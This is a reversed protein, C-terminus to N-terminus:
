PLRLYNIRIQEIDTLIKEIRDGSVMLLLRSRLNSLDKGDNLYKLISALSKKNSRSMPLSSFLRQDIRSAALEASFRQAFINEIVGEVDAAPIPKKLRQDALMFFESVAIDFGKSSVAVVFPGNPIKIRKLIELGGRKVDEVLVGAIDLFVCDYKLLTPIDALSLNEVSVISYGLRRLTDLPYDEPHDDVVIIRLAKASRPYHPNKGVWEKVSSFKQRALYKKRLGWAFTFLAIGSGAIELFNALASQSEWFKLISEWM